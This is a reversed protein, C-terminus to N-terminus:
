FKPVLNAKVVTPKKRGVVISLVDLRILSVHLVKPANQTQAHSDVRKVNEM